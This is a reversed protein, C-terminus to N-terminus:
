TRRRFSVSTPKKGTETLAGHLEKRSTDEQFPLEEEGESGTDDFDIREAGKAGEM